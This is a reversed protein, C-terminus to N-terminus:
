LRLLDEPMARLHLVLEDATVKRVESIDPEADLLVDVGTHTSVAHDIYEAYVEVDHYAARSCTAHRFYFFACTPKECLIIHSTHSKSTRTQKKM